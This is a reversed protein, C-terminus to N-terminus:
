SYTIYGKCPAAGTTVFRLANSFRVNLELVVKGDASVWSYLPRGTSSADDYIDLTATTGVTHVVLKGLVGPGTEVNTAAVNATFSYTTDNNPNTQSM